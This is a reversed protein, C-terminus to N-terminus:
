DEDGEPKPKGYNLTGNSVGERLHERDEADLARWDKAFAAANPYEFYRLVENVGSAGAM